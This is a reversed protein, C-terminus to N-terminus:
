PPFNSVLLGACAEKSETLKEFIDRAQQHNGALEHLDAAQLLITENGLNVFFEAYKTCIRSATATDKEDSALM